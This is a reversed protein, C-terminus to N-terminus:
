RHFHFENFKPNAAAAAALYKRGKASNGARSYILSAHYLIHADATKQELAQDMTKTSEGFQAGQYLAWALADLTAPTRRLQLDKRAWKAAEAPAPDRLSEADSYLGALHHYYHAHGANAAALYGALAQEHCALANAADGMLAYIDGRSQQFEPRPALKLSRASYDLARPFDRKAAHLEALHDLLDADAGGVELAKAYRAAAQEWDGTRFLTEGLRVLGWGLLAPAVAQEAGLLIGTELSKVSGASNGEAWQLNAMRVWGILDPSTDLLKAYDARAGTLDNLGLRADGRLGIAAPADPDRNLARAAVDNAEAFRHQGLYSAGLVLQAPLYDPVRRLSEQAAREARQYFRYDHSLRARELAIGALQVPLSPDGPSAKIRAEWFQIVPDADAPDTAQAPQSQSAARLDPETAAWVTPQLELLALAAFGAGRFALRRRLATAGVSCRVPM